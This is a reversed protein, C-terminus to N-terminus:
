SDLCVEYVIIKFPVFLLFPKIFGYVTDVSRITALGDHKPRLLIRSLVSFAFSANKPVTDLVVETTGAVRRFPTINM